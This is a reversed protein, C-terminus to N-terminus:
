IQVLSTKKVFSTKEVYSNKIQVSSTNEVFSNKIQM